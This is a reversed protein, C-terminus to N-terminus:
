LGFLKRRYLPEGHYSSSACVPALGSVTQETLACKNKFARFYDCHRCQYGRFKPTLTTLKQRPWKIKSISTKPPEPEILGLKEAEEVTMEVAILSEDEEDDVRLIQEEEDIIEFDYLEDEYIVGEGIPIGHAKRHCHKCLVLLNEIRNNFPNEDKHHIVTKVNERGCRECVKLNRGYEKLVERAEKTGPHHFKRRIVRRRSRFRRKKKM